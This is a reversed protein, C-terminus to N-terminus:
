GWDYPRRAVSPPDPNWRGDRYVYWLATPESSIPRPRVVALPYTQRLRSQLEIPDAHDVLLTYVMAVFELDTRPYIALAPQRM